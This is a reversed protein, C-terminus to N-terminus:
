VLRLVRERCSARGIQLSDVMEDGYPDAFGYYLVNAPLDDDTQCIDAITQQAIRFEAMVIKFEAYEDLLTQDSWGVSFEDLKLIYSDIQDWADLREQALSPLGLIMYGRHMSLAHHIEGKMSLCLEVTPVAKNIIKSTAENADKTKIQVVFLLLLLMLVISGFGLCLKMRISMNM